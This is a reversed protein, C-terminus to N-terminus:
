AHRRKRRIGGVLDNSPCQLAFVAPAPEPRCHAVEEGVPLFDHGRKMRRLAHMTRDIFSRSLYGAKDVDDITIAPLKQSGPYYVLPGNDMDMDELAVWVGCMYGAPDSHFHVTDSHVRQQTGVPFNLTQFPLPKRGYFDALLSLVKPATAVKKVNDSIKWGDQVRNKSRYTGDPLREKPYEDAMDDIIGDLITGPMELDFLFYGDRDFQDREQERVSM